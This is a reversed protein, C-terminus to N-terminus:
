GARHCTTGARRCDQSEAGALQAEKDARAFESEMDQASRGHTGRPMQHRLVPHLSVGINKAVSFRGWPVAIEAGEWIEGYEHSVIPTM